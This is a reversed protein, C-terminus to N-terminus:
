FPMVALAEAVAKERNEKVFSQILTSSEQNNSYSLAETGVIFNIFSWYNKNRAEITKKLTPIDGKQAAEAFARNPRYASFSNAISCLVLAWLMRNFRNM